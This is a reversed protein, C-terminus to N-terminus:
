SWRQNYPDGRVDWAGFSCLDPRRGPEVVNLKRSREGLFRLHKRGSPLNLREGGIPSKHDSPRKHRNQKVMLILCQADAWPLNNLKKLPPRTRVLRNGLQITQVSLSATQQTFTPAHQM